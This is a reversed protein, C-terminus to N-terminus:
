RVGSNGVIEFQNNSPAALASSAVLAAASAVRRARGSRRAM